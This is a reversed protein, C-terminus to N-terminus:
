KHTAVLMQKQQQEISEYHVLAFLREVFYPNLQKLLGQHKMDELLQVYRDTQLIAMDSATKGQGIARSIEMRDALLNILKQDLGSLQQRYNELQPLWAPDAPQPHRKSLQEVMQALNQPTIQQAADTWAKDPDVHTETMLGDYGLNIASQAVELLMHRNGCIHSNDCILPLGPMLRRLDIPIEWIPANRYTQQGFMSFGRHIAALRRQGTQVFREISGIWLALDTNVPNKIFIPVDIGRLAEAIEQVSFPNVTTRAGIWFADINSELAMDVQHATAVEIMPRLGTEEFTKTLWPLAAKGVGEFAGPRTRPKWIGARFFHPPCYEKLAQATALVQTETEASCPGAIILLSSDRIPSVPLWDM